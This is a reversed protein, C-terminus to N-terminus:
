PTYYKLAEPMHERLERIRTQDSPHTSLFEPPKEGGAAGMRQWFEVAGEPNYGAMAMFVLGMHDAESEHGRSYPLIALYQTGLGYSMMIAEHYDTDKSFYSALIGGGQQVLQHSVRETGHGAIAHAIEHGMVVAIGTEDKTYPLIGTYFVVKGGPMCWANPVDDDILNFEWDFGEILDQQNNATLYTEVAAAIREGVRKIQETQEKNTSLPGESIVEAYSVASQAIMQQEPIIKLQKRGTIPVTSCGSLLVACVLVQIKVMTNNM